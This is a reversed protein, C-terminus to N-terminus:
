SNRELKRKFAWAIMTRATVLWTKPLESSAYGSVPFRPLLNPASFSTAPPPM